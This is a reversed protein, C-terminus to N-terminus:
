RNCYYCSVSKKRMSWLPCLSHINVAKPPPCPFTKNCTQHILLPKTKFWAKPPPKDKGAIDEQAHRETGWSWHLWDTCKLVMDWWRGEPYFVLFWIKIQSSISLLSFFPLGAELCLCIPAKKLNPRGLAEKHNFGTWLHWILVHSFFHQM